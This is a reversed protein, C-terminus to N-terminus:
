IPQGWGTDMKAHALRVGAQSLTSFGPTHRRPTTQCPLDSVCSMLMWCGDKVKGKREEEGEGATGTGRM